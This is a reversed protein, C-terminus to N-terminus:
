SKTNKTLKELPTWNNFAGVFTVGDKDKASKIVKPTITATKFLVWDKYEIDLIENIIPAPDKNENTNGNLQNGDMQDSPKTFFQQSDNHPKRFINEKPNNLRKIDELHGNTVKVLERVFLDEKPKTLYAFACGAGGVICSTKFGTNVRTSLFNSM